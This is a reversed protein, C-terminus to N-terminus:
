KLNRRAQGNGTLIFVPGAWYATVTAPGNSMSGRGWKKDSTNRCVKLLKVVTGKRADVM